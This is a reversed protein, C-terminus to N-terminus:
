AEGGLQAAIEEAIIQANSRIYNAIDEILFPGSSLTVGGGLGDCLTIERDGEHIAMFGIEDTQVNM